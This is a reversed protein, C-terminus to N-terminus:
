PCFLAVFAVFIQGSRDEINVNCTISNLDVGLHKANITMTLTDFGMCTCVCMSSVHLTHKYSELIHVHALILLHELRETCKSPLASKLGFPWFAVSASGKSQLGLVGVLQIALCGVKACTYTINVDTIFMCASTDLKYLQVAAALGAAM